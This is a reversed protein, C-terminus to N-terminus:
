RESKRENPVDDRLSLTSMVKKIESPDGLANWKPRIKTLLTPGEQYLISLLRRKMPDNLTQIRGETRQPLSSPDKQVFRELRRRRIHEEILDKLHHCENTDHGHSEHFRSYKGSRLVV